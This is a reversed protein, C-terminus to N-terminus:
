RYIDKWCRCYKTLFMGPPGVLLIINGGSKGKLKSVAVFEIIRKKVDDLGYHDDNLVKEAFELDFIENNKKNWPLSTMWELYNRSVNFEASAPEISSFKTIEEDIIERVNRSLDLLDAKEKFQQTMKEKVDVELGLEKKIVKLQEHLFYERQRQAVKNEVEKVISAQLQAVLLEKKLIVLAKQLREEVSNSELIGQLDVSDASCLVAVLDALRSPDDFINSSVMHHALHERFFVSLKAVESITSFIEQYLARIIPANRDYPRDMVEGVTVRTCQTLSGEIVDLMEIRRYPYIVATENTDNISFSTSGIIKCFVGVSFVDSKQTFSSVLYDNEVNEKKLFLGLYPTRTNQKESLNSLLFQPINITKYFGPFIPRKNISLADLFPPVVPQIIRSIGASPLENQNNSFKRLFCKGSFRFGFIM